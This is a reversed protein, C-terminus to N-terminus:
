SMSSWNGTLFTNYNFICTVRWICCIKLHLELLQIQFWPITYYYYDVFSTTILEQSPYPPTMTWCIIFHKLSVKFSHQQQLSNGPCCDGIKSPKMLLWTVGKFRDSFWVASALSLPRANAICSRCLLYKCQAWWLSGPFTIYASHCMTPNYIQSRQVVLYMHRESWILKWYWKNSAFVNRIVM